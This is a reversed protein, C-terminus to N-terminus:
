IELLFKDLLTLFAVVYVDQTQNASSGNSDIGFGYNQSPIPRVYESAGVEIFM